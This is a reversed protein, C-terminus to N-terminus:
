KQSLDINFKKMLEAFKPENRINNFDYELDNKINYIYDEDYFDFNNKLTEELYRFADDKKNLLSSACALNYPNKSIKYEFLAYNYAKDLIIQRQPFKSIKKSHEIAYSSLSNTFFFDGNRYPILKELIELAEGYKNQLGLYEARNSISLLDENSLYEWIPVERDIIDTFQKYDYSILTSNNLNQTLVPINEGYSNESDYRIHAIDLYNRIDCNELKFIDIFLKEFEKKYDDEWKQYRDSSNNDIRAPLPFINLNREDHSSFRYELSQKCVKLVGDINQQNLAFVLVLVSPMLMTCVGSTDALGTRSDILVYDYETELFDAFTRFYEPTNAYFDMWNISSLKATYEKDFNGAKILDLTFNNNEKHKKPLKRQEKLSLNTKIYKNLNEKFYKNLEQINNNEENKLFEQSNLILDVLGFDNKKVEGNFYTDLGPAELDWDIMLVKKGKKALLCAVNILAMSRGVGGKYSYFTITKGKNQEKFHM